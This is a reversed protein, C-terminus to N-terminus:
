YPKQPHPLVRWALPPSLSPPWIIMGTSFFIHGGPRLSLSVPLRLFKVLNHMGYIQSTSATSDSTLIVLSLVEEERREITCTGNWAYPMEVPGAQLPVIADWHLSLLEGEGPTHHLEDMRTFHGM